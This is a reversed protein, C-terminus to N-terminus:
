SASRLSSDLTRCPCPEVETGDDLWGSGECQACTEGRVRRNGEEMRAVDSRQGEFTPVVPPDLADALQVHTWDPHALVLEALHDQHAARRNDAATALFGKDSRITGGGARFRAADRKALLVCVSSITEDGVEPRSLPESSSSKSVLPSPHPTPCQDAHGSANGNAHTLLADADANANREKDWRVRAAKRAAAKRSEEPRNWDDYDHVLYFDDDVDEWLGVKVLKAALDLPKRRDSLRPVQPKPIRGGLENRRTYALGCVFLWAADGGALAIKPHDPFHDDLYVWAM